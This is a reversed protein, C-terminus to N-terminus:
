SEANLKPLLAAPRAGHRSTTLEPPPSLSSPLPWFPAESPFTLFSATEPTQDITTQPQATPLDPEAPEPPDAPAPASQRGAQLRQLDRLAEKYSREDHSVRRHLRMFVDSATGFAEGLPVGESRSARMTHYEWLQSEVRFLRRLLWENRILTDVLFREDPSRPLFRAFYEDQLEAFEQRSEGIVFPSDADLGSKLANQSSVAKGQATRPGTSQLANLRNADIQRQTSM